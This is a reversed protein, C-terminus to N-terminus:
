DSRGYLLDADTLVFLPRKSSAGTGRRPRTMDFTAKVEKGWMGEDRIKTGAPGSYGATIARQRRIAPDKARSPDVRLRVQQTGSDAMTLEGYATVSITEESGYEALAAKYAQAEDFTLVAPEIEFPLKLEVTIEEDALLRIFSKYADTVSQGYALAADVVDERSQEILDWTAIGAMTTDPIALTLYRAQRHEDEEHEALSIAQRAREVEQETPSLEIRISHPMSVATLLPTANTLASFLGALRQISLATKLADAVGHEFGVGTFLASLRGSDADAVLAYKDGHLHREELDRLRKKRPGRIIPAAPEGQGEEDARQTSAEDPENGGPEDTAM